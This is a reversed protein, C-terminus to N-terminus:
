AVMLWEQCVRSLNLGVAASLLSILAKMTCARAHNSEGECTAVATLSPKPTTTDRWFTSVCSGALLLLLPNALRQTVSNLSVRSPKRFSITLSGIAFRATRSRVSPLISSSASARPFQHHGHLQLLLCRPFATVRVGIPAGSDVALRCSGGCRHSHIENGYSKLTSGGNNLTLFQRVAPQSLHVRWAEVEM